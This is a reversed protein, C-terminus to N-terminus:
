FYGFYKAIPSPSVRAVGNDPRIRDELYRPFYIRIFGPAANSFLALQVETTLMLGVKIGIPVKKSKNRFLGTLSAPFIFFYDFECVHFFIYSTGFFHVNFHYFVISVKMKIHLINFSFIKM